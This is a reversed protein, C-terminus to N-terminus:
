EAMEMEQLIKLAKTWTVTEHRLYMATIREHYAAKLAKPLTQYIEAGAEYALDERTMLKQHATEM